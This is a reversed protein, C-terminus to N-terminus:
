QGWREALTAVVKLDRTTGPGLAKEIRVNGIKAERTPKGLWWHVARGRVALREGEVDWADLPVAAGPDAERKLFTVYRRPEGPLPSPLALADDYVGRLEQPTLVIAPVEFGCCGALTRELHSAVKERSRLSTSFFVNGTQIYTDVERLGTVELASRLDAMKCIRGGVNIARLFAVYSPM